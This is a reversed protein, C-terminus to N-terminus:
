PICNFEKDAKIGFLRGHSYLARDHMLAPANRKTLEPKDIDDLRPKGANVWATYWFSATAAIAMRLHKEIMGNLKTQYLKCYSYTHLPEGYENTKINGQADMEFIKDDPLTKSLERDVRLLTDAAKLNETMIRWTEQQVDAIYRAKGVHYNYTDAFLEPIQSEFLAHVGKRNTLTGNHNLSVHLPMFADGIYHGLDAALLLIDTQHKQKFAITLKDTYDQIAWPLWGHKIFFKKSYKKLAQAPFKPVTDLNGLSELHIFHRPFEASDMFTYKRVDPGNAEQTIYDIHNYFFAQMPQPLAMVAGNNIHAHGSKGWSILAFGVAAVLVPGLVAIFRRKFYRVMANTFIYLLKTIRM